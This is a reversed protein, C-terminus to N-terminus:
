TADTTNDYRTKKKCIAVLRIEKEPKCKELHKQCYNEIIKYFKRIVKIKNNLPYLIWGIGMFIKKQFEIKFQGIIKIIEFYDKLTDKLTDRTFHQYHKESLEVNKSPTTIILTGDDKLVNHINELVAPIEEPILHELTEIMVIQDFKKKPFDLNKLDQVYFEIEPSFAKAFGIAKESYDVGAIRVNEKKMEYCFRGDGCGADLIIQGKFPKLLNKVIRLNILYRIYVLKYIESKLDLYHYPFDYSEEQIKQKTLKTM